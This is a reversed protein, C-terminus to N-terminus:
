WRTPTRKAPLFVERVVPALSDPWFGSVTIQFPQGGQPASPDTRVSQASLSGPLSFAALSLAVIVILRRM